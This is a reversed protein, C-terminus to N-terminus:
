PVPALMKMLLQNVLMLIQLTTQPDAGAARTGKSGTHFTLDEATKAIDTELMWSELTSTPGATAEVEIIIEKPYNGHQDLVVTGDRNLIPRSISKTKATTCGSIVTILAALIAVCLITELILFVVYKSKM